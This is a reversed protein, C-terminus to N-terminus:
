GGKIVRVRKVNRVEMEVLEPYRPLEKGIFFEVDERTACIVSPHDGCRNWNGQTIGPYWVPETGYIVAEKPSTVFGSVWFREGQMVPDIDLESFEDPIWICNERLQLRFEILNRRTAAELKGLFPILFETCLFFSNSAKWYDGNWKPKKFHLECEDYDVDVWIIRTRWRDKM